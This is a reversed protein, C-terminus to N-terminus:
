FNLVFSFVFIISSLHQLAAHIYTNIWQLSLLPITVPLPGLSIRPFQYCEREQDPNIPTNFKLFNLLSYKKFHAGKQRYANERWISFTLLYHFFFDCSSIWANPALRLSMLLCNIHTISPVIGKVTSQISSHNRAPFSVVESIM